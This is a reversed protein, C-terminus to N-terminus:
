CFVKEPTLQKKKTSTKYLNMDKIAPIEKPQGDKCGDVLDRRQMNLACVMEQSGDIMTRKVFFECDKCRM